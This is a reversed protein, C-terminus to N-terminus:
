ENRFITDNTGNDTSTIFPVVAGGGGIVDFRVMFNKLDGFQTERADGLVTKSLSPILRFENAGLNITISGKADGFALSRGDNLFLSVKVSVSQGSTEVLGFNTRATKPTKANVTAQKSDEIGAVLKSQGVVLGSSLAVTPAATGFTADSGQTSTYTRSTVVFSGGQPTIAISGISPPTVGLFGGVVDELVATALPALEISKSVVTAGATYRLLASATSAGSNTISVDTRFYSQNAGPAAGAVPVLLPETGSLSYQKNWDTQAWTDGGGPADDVPTAYSLFAGGSDNTIVVSVAGEPVISPLQALSFPQLAVPVTQGVQTGNTGLFRVTVNTAAGLMEQVYLNTHSTADRSIGNIVLRQGVAVASDSRLVPIVTGYRGSPNNDNFITANVVMDNIFSSRVMLTGVQQSQSFVTSVVNALSISGSAGLTDLKAEATQGSPPIYYLTADPLASLPSKNLLTLDSVFLKGGSGVVNGVGPVVFAVEGVALPPIVGNATPPKVTDTVPVSAALSSGENTGRAGSATIAYVFSIIGDVSGTPFSSDPRQARDVTFGISTTGGPPISIVGTPDPVIWPVNSAPAGTAIATGINKFTASGRPNQGRSASVDIRDITTIVNPTGTSPAAAVLLTVRVSLGAPVGQGSASSTGSQTGSSTQPAVNITITQSAGGALAFSTPSQTFFSGNQSLTVTTSADGINTLAYTTSGGAGSNATLVVTAPTASLIVSAPALDITASHNATGTCTGGVKVSLQVTGAVGATFTIASTGQGATITGNSITWQYTSGSVPAAVSATNGTSNPKVSRSARIAVSCGGSVTLVVDNGSGGTYSIVMTKGGVSITGGQPLNKFTGNIPSSSTNDVIKYTTGAIPPLNAVLELTASGLTISTGQLSDINTGSVDLQVRASSAFTITPATASGITGEGGVGLLGSALLQTASGAVYAASDSQVSIPGRHSGNFRLTGRSQAQLTGTMTSTTEIDVLTGLGQAAISGKGSLAGTIRIPGTMTLLGNVSLSGTFTLLDSTSISQANAFAIPISITAPGAATPNIASKAPPGADDSLVIGDTLTIQNGVFDYGDGAIMIRSILFGPALDNVPSKSAVDEAFILDSGQVPASGESWNAPNSWSQAAGGINGTWNRSAAPVELTVGYFDYYIRLDLGGANVISGNPLSNFTGTLGTFSSSDIDLIRFMSGPPPNFSGAKRLELNVNSLSIANQAHIQDYGSGAVFGNLDVILTGGTFFIDTTEFRGAQTGAPTVEGVHVDAELIDDPGDLDVGLLAYKADNALYLSTGPAAWLDGGGTLYDGEIILSAASDLSITGSYGAFSGDLKVVTSAGGISLDGVGSIVGGLYLKNSLFATSAGTTLDGTFTLFATEDGIIAAFPGLTIDMSVNSTAATGISYQIYTSVDLPLGILDYGAASIDISDVVLGPINNNPNSRALGGSAFTLMDGSSPVSSPGWNGADNWNDNTSSLGTWNRLAAFAPPAILLLLAVAVITALSGNRNSM